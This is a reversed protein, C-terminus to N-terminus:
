EPAGVARARLRTLNSDEQPGIETGAESVPDRAATYSAAFAMIAKAFEAHDVQDPVKVMAFGDPLLLDIAASPLARLLGDIAAFPMCAEGKAWTRLTRESYGSRHELQKFTLGTLNRGHRFADVQRARSITCDASM